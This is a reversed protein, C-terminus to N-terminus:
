QRGVGTLEITNPSAPDDSGIVITGARTNQQTPQFFVQFTCTANPKLAKGSCKDRGAVLGFQGGDTQGPAVTGITLDAVGKARTNRVTFTAVAKRGIKVNGFYRYAPTVAATPAQTFTAAVTLDSGMTINCTSTGTCASWGAFVAGPNATPALVVQTGPLYAAQCSHGVTCTDAQYPGMKVAGPGTVNVTIAYPTALPKILEANYVHPTTDTLGLTGTAIRYAGIAYGRSTLAPSGTDEVAPDVNTIRISVTNNHNRIIEFTRFGQPFDRTSPTEVEWFGFEPGKGAPAPQPTVTNIHRHGAMWLILNSYNHLTDLLMADTVINYPPVPNNATIPIPDDKTVPCPVGIDATNTVSCTSLFMPVLTENSVGGPQIPADPVNTRPAVPVHAAVIMLKGEAQGKDLENTLWDYREQDLCGHSYSQSSGYPNEKCTDDIVIVKVPVSAKPEFTYSVFDRDLNAQTFGHGKPKSTTKFFEKMWNLSSSTATTLAHRNRDPAVIPPTMTSALGYDTVTGYPTSGDIVGMYIGRADFSPFGTHDVGMNIVTNGVLARRVYDDPYLAGSWYQDHNGIVQYWSISKDLGASQYPRQYDITHEGKHAGSSPVIRKGDLVDIHWRLGNYLNSNAPDGLGIGFDFPTQKHLANITQVVADLVQTTYLMVPSYAPLSAKGFAGPVGFFLGQAPSEKDTIHTDSISFYTLLTEAATPTIPVTGDPLLYGYDVLDPDGFTWHSYKLTDYQSVATISIEEAGAIDIPCVTRQRTTQVDTSIPYTPEAPYGCFPLGTVFLLLLFLPTVMKRMTNSRQCARGKPNKDPNKQM